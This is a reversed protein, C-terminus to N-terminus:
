QVPCGQGHRKRTCILSNFFILCDTQKITQLHFTDRSTPALAGLVDCFVASLEGGGGESLTEFYCKLSLFSKCVKMDVM